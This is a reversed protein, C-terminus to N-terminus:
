VVAPLLRQGNGSEDDGLDSSDRGDIFFGNSGYAGSYEKPIWVGDNNTKGFSTPGLATGDIFNIEALYGDYYNTSTPHRGIRHEVNNNIDGSANLSGTAHKTSYDTVESGNIYFRMRNDATADTTDFAWVLHYWGSPDRYKAATEWYWGANYLNFFASGTANENISIYSPTGTAGFIIQRATSGSLKLWASWTWKQRDGASSFTKTLYASDDDNFRISQDIEYGTAQGAAGM